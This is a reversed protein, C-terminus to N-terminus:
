KIEHPGEQQPVPGATKVNATCL